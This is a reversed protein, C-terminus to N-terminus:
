KLKKAMYQFIPNMGVKEASALRVKNNKHVHSSIAWCGMDKAVQEFYGHLITYIGRGRCDEDVASLTIWLMNSKELLEKSYVIHGLIKDDKDVAYVGGCDSDQWSTIPYGFGNDILNAMQRLFFTYFPSMALTTSNFVRVENGLKDIETGMLTIM